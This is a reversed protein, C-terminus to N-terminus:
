CIRLQRFGHMCLLIKRLLIITLLIKIGRPYKLFTAVFKILFEPFEVPNINLVYTCKILEHLFYHFYFTLNYFLNSFNNYVLSIDLFLFFTKSIFFLLFAESSRILRLFELLCPYSLSISIISLLKTLQKMIFCYVHHKEEWFHHKELPTYPPLPFTTPFHPKVQFYLFTIRYCAKMLFNNLHRSKQKLQYITLFFFSMNFFFLKICDQM